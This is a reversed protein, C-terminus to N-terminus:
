ALGRAAGCRGLTDLREGITTDGAVPRQGPDDVSPWLRWRWSGVLQDIGPLPVCPEAPARKLRGLQTLVKAAEGGGDPDRWSIGPRPRRM